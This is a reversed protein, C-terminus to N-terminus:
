KFLDYNIADGFDLEGAVFSNKKDASFASSYDADLTKFNKSWSDDAKLTEYVEAFNVHKTKEWINTYDKNNSTGRKRDISNIKGSVYRTYEFSASAVLTRSQDYGVSIPSVARPFLGFFTYEISNLYDREFKTIKTQDMKYTDPYQMKAFYNPDAQSFGGSNSTGNQPNYSGSNMYEMWHELFKIVKYDKDVYFEMTIPTYLRTHAFKETVGAFNGTVNVTANSAVPLSTSYCLLGCDGAIFRQDVGRSSLYEKLAAPPAGFRVEYQSTQAVNTITRKFDSIRRPFPASM